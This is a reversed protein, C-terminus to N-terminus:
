QLLFFLWVRASTHRLRAPDGHCRVLGHPSSNFEPATTQQASVIGPMRSFTTSRATISNIVHVCSAASTSVWLLLVLLLRLGALLRWLLGKKRPLRSQRCYVAPVRLGSTTVM